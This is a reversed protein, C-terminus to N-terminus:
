DTVIRCSRLRRIACSVETGAPGWMNTWQQATCPVYEGKKGTIRCWEDMMEQFTWKELAVNAYKGFSKPGTALAQRVWIGPNVSM